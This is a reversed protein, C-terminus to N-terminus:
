ASGTTSEVQRLEIMKGKAKEMQLRIDPLAPRVSGKKNEEKKKAKAKNARNKDSKNWIM